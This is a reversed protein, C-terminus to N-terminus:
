KQLFWKINWQQGVGAEFDGGGKGKLREWRAFSTAERRFDEKFQGKISATL